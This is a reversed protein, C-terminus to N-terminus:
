LKVTTVIVEKFSFVSLDILKHLLNSMKEISKSWEISLVKIAHQSEPKLMLPKYRKKKELRM